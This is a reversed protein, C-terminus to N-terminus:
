ARIILSIVVMIVFIVFIVVITVFIVFIVVMIVFIVFIVFITVFIVFTTAGIILRRSETRVLRCPLIQTLVTTTSWWSAQTKFLSM